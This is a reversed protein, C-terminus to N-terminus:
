PIFNIWGTLAYKVGKLPPNGRHIHTWGAPWCIFRGQVPPVRVSQYLFETEGGDEVDNLYVMWALITTRDYLSSGSECHWNHYGESPRTKQMKIQANYVGAFSGADIIPYKIQWSEIIDGMVYDGIDKMPQSIMADMETLFMSTDSRQNNHLGFHRRTHTLGREEADDFVEICANCVNEDILGDLIRIHDGYSDDWPLEPRNKVQESNDPM